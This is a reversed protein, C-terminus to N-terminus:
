AGLYVRSRKYGLQQFGALAGCDLWWPNAIHSEFSGAVQLPGLM